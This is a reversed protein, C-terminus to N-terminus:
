GHLVGNFCNTIVLIIPMGPGFKLLVGAQGL